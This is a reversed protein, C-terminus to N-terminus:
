LLGRKWLQLRAWDLFSRTWIWGVSREGAEIKAIGAMGPRLMKPRKILEAELRFRNVGGAAESVPTIGTVTFPFTQQPMSRLRLRGTYGEAIIGIDAEDIMLILRYDVLSAVEFLVQGREVPSGLAESLDGAIVVGDIPARLVARAIQTDLFDIQTQAQARKASLIRVRTRDRQAMTARQEKAVKDRESDWKIRELQLDEVDLRALVDGQYVVDGARKEVQSIFSNSGAVVARQLSAEISADAEITFVRTYQTSGVAFALLLLSVFKATLNEGGLLWAGGRRLSRLVKYGPGRADRQKLGIIPAVLLVLENLRDVEEGDFERDRELLLAGTVTQEDVLPLSLLAPKNISQALALHLPPTAENPDAVPLAVVGGIQATEELACTVYTMAANRADIDATGSVAALTMRRGARTGLTVRQCGFRLAIADVFARYSRVSDPHDLLAAVVDLATGQRALLLAAPDTTMGAPSTSKPELATIQGAANAGDEDRRLVIQCVRKILARHDVDAEAPLAFAVAGPRGGLRIRLGVHVHTNRTPNAPTGVHAGDKLATAAVDRLQTNSEANEPHGSVVNVQDGQRVIAIAAAASLAHANQILWSRVGGPVATKETCTSADFLTSPSIAM